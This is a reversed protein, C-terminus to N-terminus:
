RSMALRCPATVPRMRGCPWVIVLAGAHILHLPGAQVNWLYRASQGPSSAAPVIPLWVRYARGGTWSVLQFGPQGAEWSPM